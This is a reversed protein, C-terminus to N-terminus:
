LELQRAPRQHRRRGARGDRARQEDCRGGVEHGPGRRRCARPRDRTRVARMSM